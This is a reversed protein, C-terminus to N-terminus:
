KMKWNNSNSGSNQDSNSSFREKKRKKSLLQLSGRKKAVFDECIISVHDQMEFICAIQSGVHSKWQMQNVPNVFVTKVNVCNESM